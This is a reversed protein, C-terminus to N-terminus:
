VPPLADEEIASIAKKLRRKAEKVSKKSPAMARPRFASDLDPAM